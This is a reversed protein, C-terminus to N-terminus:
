DLIPYLYYFGIRKFFDLYYFAFILGYKSVYIIFYM